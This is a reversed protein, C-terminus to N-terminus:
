VKFHSVLKRLNDSQESVEEGAKETEKASAASAKSIDEINVVSRNVDQTVATQEQAATSIQTNLDLVESIAQSILTLYEGTKEAQELTTTSKQRSLEMVSVAEESGAQLDMIITQIESTSDQTRKALTRVEDAVVAFGRGQEGARAAEIAANLALLNTQEAINRIVDLVTGINESKSKLDNLVEFSNEVNNTLSKISLLTEQVLENGENTRTNAHSASDNASHCSRAVDEVAATMETIATAVQITEDKQQNLKHSSESTVTKVQLAASALHDASQMISHVTKQLRELFNNLYHSLEALEDKSDLNIRKTLDGDAVDKLRDNILAIPRTIGRTIFFAIIISLAVAVLTGIITIRIVFDSANKQENGRIKILVEEAKVLEALLGRISDMYFKGKGNAMMLKIDNMRLPYNNVDRRAEIEPQAAQDIWNNIRTDLKKIDSKTISTRRITDNLQKLHRDLSRKGEIFPELSAEQGTLLFGRQGTEMNVLDLTILTILQNGSTKGSATFKSDLNNLISRINDFIEKGVTRASIEEFKQVSNIGLEVQRRAEIEPEAAETLWKSQLEDVQKWREGQEPNDSTLQQGQKILTIFRERGQNYPELYEDQGTVMFGRQGTEMDIMAASVSEATRIVEYTHNVWRSSDIISSVGSYIVAAIITMLALVLAYGTSIKTSLRISKLINM